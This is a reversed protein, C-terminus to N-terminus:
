VARLVFGVRDGRGESNFREARKEWEWFQKPGFIRLMKLLLRPDTLHVDRRYAESAIFQVLTSEDFTRALRMGVKDAAFMMGDRSPIVIHRPADIDVWHERYTDWAESSTTPLRVLCQGGSALKQRADKLTSIFDPVHELSHNFLILDFEGPVESLYRKMLTVGLSTECDESIFPDAGLLNTFGIRALRDLTAGGGCGVDLVRMDQTVGLKGLFKVLHGTIGTRVIREPLVTSVLAGLPASGRRLEHRDLHTTLWRFIAPQVAVYSYYNPPYYRAIDEDKPVDVVQLSGCGTCTFYEFVERTGFMMERVSVLSHHGTSGCLQCERDVVKM